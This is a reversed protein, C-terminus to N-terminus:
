SRPQPAAAPRVPKRRPIIDTRLKRALWAEGMLDSPLGLARLIEDIRASGSPTVIIEAYLRGNELKLSKIYPRVDITRAGDPSPRELKIQTRALAAELDAPSPPPLTLFEICYLLVGVEEKVGVRLPDVSRAPLEPPLEAVLRSLLADPALWAALDIEFVEDESEIGLQLAAPFAIRPRPNFGESMAVPLDARRVAREVTRMLDHHSLFRLKGLKAFRVRYSYKRM